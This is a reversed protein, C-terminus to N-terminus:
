EKGKTNQNQRRGAKIDLWVRSRQRIFEQPMVKDVYLRQRVNDPVYIASDKRLKADVLRIASRNATASAIENSARAAIEPRMIFDIFKHANEPHPASKPIAFVDVWMSTGEKPVIFGIEVGNHMDAAIQIAKLVETSWGLVVCLDGAGLDYSSQYIGFRTVYPQLRGLLDAARALDKPDQSNPDLGLYLLVLPIVDVAEDLLSIGCKSLRKAHEEDFLVALSDSKAEPYCKKVAQKNYGIGTVGWMYPVVYQNSPDIEKLKEILFPDMHKLNPLLTKNLPQYIGAQIQPGVYPWASPCVVDYGSTGTLLKAELVDNSDYVDIIVDIGTEQEFEKIIEVPIYSSWVYLHLKQPM